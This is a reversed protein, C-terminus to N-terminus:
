MPSVSTSNIRYSFDNAAWVDKCVVRGVIAIHFVSNIDLYGSNYSFCRKNSMVLALFVNALESCNM